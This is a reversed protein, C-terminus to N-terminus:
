FIMVVMTVLFFVSFLGILFSLGHPLQWGLIQFFLHFWFRLKMLAMFLDSWMFPLKSSNMSASYQCAQSPSIVLAGTKSPGWKPPKIELFRGSKWPLDSFFGMQSLSLSLYGNQTIGMFYGNSIHVGHHLGAWKLKHLPFYKLLTDGSRPAPFYVLKLRWSECLPILFITLFSKHIDCSLSM